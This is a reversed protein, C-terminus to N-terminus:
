TSLKQKRMKVVLDQASKISTRKYFCGKQNYPIKTNFEKNLRCIFLPTNNENRDGQDSLFKCFHHWCVQNVEKSTFKIM